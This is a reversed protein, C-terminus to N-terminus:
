LPQPSPTTSSSPLYLHRRFDLKKITISLVIDYYSARSIFNLASRADRKETHLVKVLNFRSDADSSKGRAQLLLYTGRPFRDGSSQGEIRDKFCDYIDTNHTSDM